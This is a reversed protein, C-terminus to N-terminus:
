IRCDPMLLWWILIWFYIALNPEIFSILTQSFTPLSVQLDKTEDDVDLILANDGINYVCYEIPFDRSMIRHEDEKSTNEPLVNFKIKGAREGLTVKAINDAGYGGVVNPAGRRVEAYSTMADIPYFSAPFRIVTWRNQIPVKLSQGSAKIKEKKPAIYEFYRYEKPIDPSSFVDKPNLGADDIIQMMKPFDYSINWIALFDPSWEHVIKITNLVCDLENEYIVVEINLERNSKKNKNYLDRIKDAVEHDTGLDHNYLLKRNIAMFCKDDMVISIITLIKDDVGAEIDLACVTYPRKSQGYKDFYQKAIFATSKIDSGYVYPSKLTDWYSNRNYGLKGLKHMIENPLNSETSTYCILKSIHESEKKQTHRRYAEKTIYFPRLYNSIIRLNPKVTGDKYVRQEKVIHIDHGNLEKSSFHRAFRFAIDVIPNTDSTDSKIEINDM